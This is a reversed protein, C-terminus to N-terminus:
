EQKLIYSPIIDQLLGHDVLLSNPGPNCLRREHLNIGSGGQYGYNLSSSTLTADLFPVLPHQQQQQSYHSLTTRPMPMTFSNACCSSISSGSLAAAHTSSPRTILPSPHTHQGEYTTVVVSPDSFSREVRKKVNCSASTCRYYSRFGLFNCLYMILLCFQDRVYM